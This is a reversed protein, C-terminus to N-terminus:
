IDINLVKILNIADTRNKWYPTPYGKKGRLTANFNDRCYRLFNPYSLGLIRAALIILSGGIEKGGCCAKGAYFINWENSNIGELVVFQEM